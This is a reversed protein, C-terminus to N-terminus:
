AAGYIVMGAHPILADVLTKLDSAGTGVGMAVVIDAAYTEALVPAVASLRDRRAFANLQYFSDIDQGEAKAQAAMAEGVAYLEQDLYYVFRGSGKREAGNRATPMCNICLTFGKKPRGPKKDQTRAAEVAQQADLRPEETEQEESAEEPVPAAAPEQPAAPAAERAEVKVPQQSAEFSALPSMGQMGDAKTGDKGVWCVTGDGMPQIEFMSSPTGGKATATTDCMKCPHGAANFGLGKCSPVVCAPNAWPPPTMGDPAVTVPEPLSTAPQPTPVVQVTPKAAAPQSAVVAPTAPQSAAEPANLSPAPSGNRMAEAQAQKQKIVDAFGMPQTEKNAPSGNITVGHYGADTARDITTGTVNRNGVENARELRREMQDENIRGTCIDMYPCGGYANCANSGADPDPIYSWCDANRRLNDMEKANEVVVEQWHREVEQRTVVAETKRVRTDNPNKCFQNHRLNIREPPSKGEAKMKEIVARAYILMQTNERLAKSSKAYRMNSTTKHDEIGEEHLYDIFGVITVTATGATEDGEVIIDRFEHEIERGPQRVLVGGEIAAAILRRIITQEEPTAEGDPPGGYKNHAIHWGDPYLDVPEGTKPDRGLDDASLYRECVAHLVTGFVQSSSSPTRLGRVRELWWKRKCLNFTEMQSASTQILRKKRKEKWDSVLPEKHGTSSALAEVSAMIFESAVQPVIANGMGHLAVRAM